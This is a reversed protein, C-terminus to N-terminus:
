ESRLSEAPNVHATKIVQSSVTLVTILLVTLIPLLFFWWGIGTRYPFNQLWGSMILYGVGLGIPVAILVQIFFYRLLLLVANGVSSGLVKRLGIERTRQLTTYSSLGFLGLAAIFIALFAFLGFVKGFRM